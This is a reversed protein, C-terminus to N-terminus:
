QKLNKIYGEPNWEPNTSHSTILTNVESAVARLKKHLVEETEESSYSIPPSLPKLKKDVLAVQFMLEEESLEPYTTMMLFLNKHKQILTIAM